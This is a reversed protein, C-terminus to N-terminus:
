HPRGGSSAAAPAPASAHSPAAMSAASSRSANGFGEGGSGRAAGGGRSSESRPPPPPTIRRTAVEPTRTPRPCGGVTVCNVNDRIDPMSTRRAGGVSTNTAGSQTSGALPVQATKLQATANSNVFRHERPDYAISSGHDLTIPRTGLTGATVTRSTRAPATSTVVSTRFTNAPVTKVVKWEESATVPVSAAVAGGTVPFVGRALNLPAKGHVDLPHVPVIGLLGPKSRVFVGTAPSWGGGYGNFGLAGPTWLWGFIPDFIWGGFHYPLWGWPEGGIFSMGYMPDMFWGGSAFPSWGLGMGYPRWGAGYGAVPYWSGYTYLDAAGYTYNSSGIYPQAANTANVFNDIRTSVWRDFDDSAPLRSTSVSNDDGAHVSLSEGRAVSTPKDKRLVSVHGKIVNVTSGDDFNDLRFTSRESAEVTFDGGTVSFYDGNSPTVYFSATGQRLVLRTTKVGDELSLDYFELVTDDGLFAMAGNEFEVAARGKDTALVYGQRVPLNPEAAEWTANGSALPDGKVDRAFRVDGQVVSLRIIRAHSSDALAPHASIFLLSLLSLLASRLLMRSIM